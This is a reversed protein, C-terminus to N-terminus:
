SSRENRQKEENMMAMYEDPCHQQIKAFLKIGVNREGEAFATAHQDGPVFSPRFIHGQELLWFVVRRGKEEAMIHRFLRAETEMALQQKSRERDIDKKDDADYTM